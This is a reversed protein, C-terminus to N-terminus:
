KSKKSTGEPVKIRETDQLTAELWAPRKKKKPINDPDANECIEM